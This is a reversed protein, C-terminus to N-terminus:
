LSRLWEMLGPQRQWPPLTPKSPADGRTKELANRTMELNARAYVASTKVDAHGLIAQIIVINNGAQLLHMAKSHRLMHPAVRQPLGPRQCRATAVHKRLIYRVGSRTLRENRRNWFLPHDLRDATELHHERLYSRMLNVTGEMLPVVRTKRGKGTLWVQSPADLRIDRVSLDILEQVRAGTDYLFTLLVADRRGERSGLDPAALVAALDDPSLYHVPQRQWRQLPIALIQQCQLIRQPEEVQLYRFFAHIASLRQNRTRASSGREELHRLYNRVLDVDVHDLTLREPAHGGHDRCDRLLLLFADRYAKTTNPSANRQAALHDAFFRALHTAFDTPRM